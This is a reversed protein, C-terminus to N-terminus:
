MNQAHIQIRMICCAFRMHKMINKDDTAKEVMNKWMIDYVTRNEPFLNNFMSHTNQNERCSKDAVCKM